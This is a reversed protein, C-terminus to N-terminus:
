SDFRFSFEASFCFFYVVSRCFLQLCILSLFYFLDGQNVSVTGFFFTNIIIQLFSQRISSLMFLYLALGAFFTSGLFHFFHAL